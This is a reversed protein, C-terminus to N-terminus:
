RRKLGPLFRMLSEESYLKLAINYSVTEVFGASAADLIADFGSDEEFSVIKQRKEISKGSKKVQKQKRKNRPEEKVLDQLVKDHEVCKSSNGKGLDLLEKELQAKTKKLSRLRDIALAHQLNLDNSSVQGGDEQNGLEKSNNGDYPHDEDSGVNKGREVTSAVADIEFQVARM